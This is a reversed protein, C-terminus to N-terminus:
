GGLTSRPNTATFGFFKKYHTALELLWPADKFHKPNVYYMSNAPITIFLRRLDDSMVFLGTKLFKLLQAATQYAGAESTAADGKSSTSRPSHIGLFVDGILYREDGGLFLLSCASACLVVRERGEEALSDSLSTYHGPNYLITGYEDMVPTDRIVTIVSRAKFHAAICIGDGLSGGPSELIVTFPQDTPLQPVIKECDGVGVGGTLSYLNPKLLTLTLNGIDSETETTLEQANGLLYNVGGSLAIFLLIVGAIAWEKFNSM